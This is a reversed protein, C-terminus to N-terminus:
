APSRSRNQKSRVVADICELWFTAAAVTHFYEFLDAHRHVSIAMAHYVPSDPGRRFEGVHITGGPVDFTSMKSPM